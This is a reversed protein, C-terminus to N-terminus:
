NNDNDEPLDPIKPLSIEEEMKYYQTAGPRMKSTYYGSERLKKTEAQRGIAKKSIKITPKVALRDQFHWYSAVFTAIFSSIAFGYQMWLLRDKRIKFLNLLSKLLKM